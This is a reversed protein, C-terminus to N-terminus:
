YDRGMDQWDEWEIRQIRDDDPEENGWFREYELSQPQDDPGDAEQDLVERQLKEMERAYEGKLYEDGPQYPSPPQQDGGRSPRRWVGQNWVDACADAADDYTAGELKLMQDILIHLNECDDILKVYGDSWYGAATRIREHKKTGQRTFQVIEPCRFGAQTIMTRLHKAYIGDKGGVEKEDTICRVRINRNDLSTLVRLLARDFKESTWTRSRM